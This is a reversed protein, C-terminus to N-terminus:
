NHPMLPMRPMRCIGSHSGKTLYYQDADIGDLVGNWKDVYVMVDSMSSGENLKCGYFQAPNQANAANGFRLLLTFLGSLTNKM